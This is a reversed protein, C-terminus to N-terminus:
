KGGRAADVRRILDEEVPNRAFPNFSVFSKPIFAISDGFQGPKRLRLTVRPPRTSWSTGVNMIDSLAVRAEIGRRKVLLYDGGDCVEDALNWFVTRYLVVGIGMMLVPMVLFPVIQAPPQKKALTGAVMATAIVLLLGIWLVPFVKKM